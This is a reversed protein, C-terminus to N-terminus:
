CVALFLLRFRGPLSADNDGSLYTASNRQSCTVIYLGIDFSVMAAKHTIQKDREDAV